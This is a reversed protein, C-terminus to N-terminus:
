EPMKKSPIFLDEFFKLTHQSKFVLEVVEFSVHAM